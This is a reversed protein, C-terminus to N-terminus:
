RISLWLGPRRLDLSMMDSMWVAIFRSIFPDFGTGYAGAAVLEKRGWSDFAAFTDTQSHGAGIPIQQSGVERWALDEAIAAQVCAFALMSILIKKM